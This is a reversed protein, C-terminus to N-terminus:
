CPHLSPGLGSPKTRVLLHPTRSARGAPRGPQAPSVGSDRGSGRKLTCQTGLRLVSSAPLSRVVFYSEDAAEVHVANADAESYVAVTEIGLKDCTRFVRCAIEGRNAVLVKDFLEPFAKPPKVAGSELLAGFKEFEAAQMAAATAAQSAM